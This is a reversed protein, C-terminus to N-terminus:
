LGLKNTFRMKWQTEKVTHEKPQSPHMHTVLVHIRVQSATGPVLSFHIRNFFLFVLINSINWKQIFPFWTSVNKDKGFLHNMLLSPKRKHVRIPIQDIERSSTTTV